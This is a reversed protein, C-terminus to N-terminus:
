RAGGSMSPLSTIPSGGTNTPATFTVKIGGQVQMASIGTPAGPPTAIVNFPNSLGGTLADGSTRSASLLAGIQATDVTAGTVTCSKSAAALTCTTTGGLAGPGVLGLAIATSAVVPAPTDRCTVARSSWM